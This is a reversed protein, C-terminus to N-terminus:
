KDEEKQEFFDDFRLARAHKSYRRDTMSDGKRGKRESDTKLERSGNIKASENEDNEDVEDEECHKFKRSLMKGM